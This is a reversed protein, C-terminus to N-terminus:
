QKRLSVAALIAMSFEFAMAGYTYSGVADVGTATSYLRALALGGLMLLLSLLAPRRLDARLAGLLCFIGYGTQLGGYMAGLESYGDGSLIDLGAYTAPVSPDFLCMLGYAAFSVAAVWLLIKGLMIKEKDDHRNGRPAYCLAHNVPPPARVLIRQKEVYM